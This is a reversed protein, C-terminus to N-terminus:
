PKSNTVHISDSITVPDDEDMRNSAKQVRTAYDENCDSLFLSPTRPCHASQTLSHGRVEDFNDSINEFLNNFGDVDMNTYDNSAMNHTFCHKNGLERNPAVM